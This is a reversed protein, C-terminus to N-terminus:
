ITSRCYISVHCCFNDSFSMSSIVKMYKAGIADRKEDELNGDAENDETNEQDEKKLDEVDWLGDELMVQNDENEKSALSYFSSM